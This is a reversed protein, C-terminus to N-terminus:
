KWIIKIVGGSEGYVVDAGLMMEAFTWVQLTQRDRFMCWVWAEPLGRYDARYIEKEGGAHRKLIEEFVIGLKTYPPKLGLYEATRLFIRIKQSTDVAASVRPYSHRFEEPLVPNPWQTLIGIYYDAIHAHSHFRLIEAVKMFEALSDIGDLIRICGRYDVEPPRLAKRISAVLPDDNKIETM